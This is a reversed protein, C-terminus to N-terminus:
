PEPRFSAELAPGEVLRIADLHLVHPGPEPWGDPHLILLGVGELRAGALQALPIRRFYWGESSRAHLEAAAVSSLGEQDTSSNQYLYGDSTRVQVTADLGSPRQTRLAYLLASSQSLSEPGPVPLEAWVFPRMGPMPVVEVELFSQGFFPAPADRAGATRATFRLTQVQRTYAGDASWAAEPGPEDPALASATRYVELQKTEGARISVEVVLRGPEGEVLNSSLRALGDYVAVDGAGAAADQLADAPLRASFPLVVLEANRDLGATERVILRGLPSAGSLAARRDLWLRIPRAVVLLMAVVALGALLARGHRRLLPLAAPRLGEQAFDVLLVGLLIALGRTAGDLRLASALAALGVLAALWFLAAPVSRLAALGYAADTGEKPDTM